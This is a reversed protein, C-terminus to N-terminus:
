GKNPPVDERETPQAAYQIIQTGNCVLRIPTRLDVIRFSKRAKALLSSYTGPSVRIVTTDPKISLIGLMNRVTMAVGKAKAGKPAALSAVDYTMVDYTMM